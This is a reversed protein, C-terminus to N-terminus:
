EQNNLLALNTNLSEEPEVCKHSEWLGEKMNDGCWNCASM